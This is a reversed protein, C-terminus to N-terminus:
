GKGVEEREVLDGRCAAAVGLNFAEILRRDDELRDGLM